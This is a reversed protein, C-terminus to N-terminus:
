DSDWFDTLLLLLLTLVEMLFLAINFLVYIWDARLFNTLGMLKLIEIVGKSKPEFSRFWFSVDFIWLWFAPFLAILVSFLKKIPNKRSLGIIIIFPIYLVLYQYNVAYAMTLFALSGILASKELSYGKKFAIFGIIATMIALLPLSLRYVDILRFSLGFINITDLGLSEHLYTLVTFIGEFSYCLPLHYYPNFRVLWTARLYNLPSSMFFPLNIVSFSSIFGLIAKFLEKREVNKFFSSYVIFLPFLTHQKTSIALGAMISGLFHRKKKLLYVSALLFLVALSDFQGFIASQYIVAPNFFWTLFGLIGRFEGKGKLQLYIFIGCILDALIIYLKVGIIWAEVTPGSAKTALYVTELLLIWLPPYPYPWPYTWYIQPTLAYDYFRLTTEHFTKAFGWFQYVDPGASIGAISLRVILGLIILFILVLLSTSIKLRKIRVNLM